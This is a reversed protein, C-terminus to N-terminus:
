ASKSKKSKTKSARKRREEKRKNSDEVRWNDIMEQIIDIREQNLGEVDYLKGQMKKGEKPKNIRSENGTQYKSLKESVKNDTKSESIEKGTLLWDISKNLAISITVLHPATPIKDQAFIRAIVGNNLGISHGWPSPKQNGICELIRKKFTKKRDIVM